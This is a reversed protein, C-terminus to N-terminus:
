YGKRAVADDGLEIERTSQTVLAASTHDRVSLVRLEGVVEPPAKSEAITPPKEVEAPSNSELAIRLGAVKSALSKEWADGRRVVFLRNGVQLGDKEGKDIFVVQNQGYFNHPYVSALVQAQVDKQNRVPAVVDFKRGVPGIRAGREIVDLSEVVQARAVRQKPDWRDVRVTGQIQVLQGGGVKRVPRFVTLEQGLKVDHEPGIRLYVQDTDTLFMKDVAAGSIEGWNDKEDDAIFGTDRLFVTQPVVRRRRDIFSGNGPPMTGGQKASPGTAGTIGGSHLKVQDGPYIWHPNQIQPNYSWVRPWQYPNHLFTDCIAWLTDGRKVVYVNPVPGGGVTISGSSQTGFDAGGNPNGYITGAGTSANPDSDFTDEKNGSYTQSSSNTNNGGGLPVGAPPPLVGGPFYQTQTTVTPAGQEAGGGGAASGQASGGGGQDQAFAVSVASFPLVLAAAGFALVRRTHHDAFRYARM